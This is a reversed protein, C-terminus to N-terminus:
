SAPSSKLMTERSVREGAPVCVGYRLFLQSDSELAGLLELGVPPELEAGAIIRLAEGSPPDGGALKPSLSLFLENVLGAVLLQSNLHPGGECLLTRAAFREHLEALAAALDLRGERQTRVYEIQAGSAPLSAASSTVIAVRAAPDALLPIDPPLSLRGSVICALPEESLGRERRHRRRPEERIIRGYREARVTGAGVMVADVAGRLGHFLERDAEGGLGGSRGAITARGDITSVMNLMVYPRQGGTDSRDRLGLSEIIEEVAAPDGPPLLRRFRLAAQEAARPKEREPRLSPNSKAGM